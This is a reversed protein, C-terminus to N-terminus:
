NKDNGLIFDTRKVESDLLSILKKAEQRIPEWCPSSMARFHEDRSNSVALNIVADPISSVNFLLSKVGDRQQDSLNSEPMKLIAEASSMFFNKIEWAVNDYQNAKCQEDANKALKNLDEMFHFFTSAYIEETSNESDGVGNIKDSM